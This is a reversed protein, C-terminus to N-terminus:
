NRLCAMAAARVIRNADNALSERLNIPTNPHIAIAYRHLWSSSRFHKALLNRSALPHSLVFFGCVSAIPYPHNSSQSQHKIYREFYGYSEFFRGAEEPHYQILSKIVSLDMRSDCNNNSYLSKLIETPTHPNKVMAIKVAEYKDTALKELLTVPSNKKGDVNFIVMAAKPHSAVAERILIWQSQGLEVLKDMSIDLDQTANWERLFGKLEKDKNDRGKRSREKTTQLFGMLAAHRVEHNADQLLKEVLFGPLNLNQGLLRRMRFSRSLAFKELILAPTNPNRALAIKIDLNDIEGCRELLSGPINENLAIKRYLNEIALKPLEYGGGQAFEILLDIATDPNAAIASNDQYHSNDQLYSLDALNKNQLTTAARAKVSEAIDEQLLMLADNPTNINGAVAYRVRFELDHALQRLVAEPTRSNLAVHKRVYDDKDNALHTLLEVSTKPNEIVAVRVYYDADRVLLELIASTVNPHKAIDRHLDLKKDQLLRVLLTAPTIPNRAVAIRVGLRKDQALQELVEVPVSPNQAVAARTEWSKDSALEALIDAPTHRHRAVGLRTHEWERKVIEQLTAASTLPNKIAAEYQHFLRFVWTPTNPNQFVTRRVWGDKDGALKELIHVPTNMNGAIGMRVKNVAMKPNELIAALTQPTTDINRAILALAKPHLATLFKDPIVGLQWLKSELFENHEIYDKIFQRKQVISFAVEDGRSTMETSWNVHMKAVTPVTATRWASEATTILKQLDERCVKPNMAVAFMIGPCRSTIAWKLFSDPVVELKLLSALTPEPLDQLLNPNELLLLSFVPNELLEEPFEAGLEFLINTPTNPNSALAKCTEYDARSSLEALLEPPAYINAAVVRGLAISTYALEELRNQPTTDSSAEQVFALLTSPTAM